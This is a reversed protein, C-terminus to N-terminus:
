GTEAAAKADALSGAVAVCRGAVTVEFVIELRPRNATCVPVIEAAGRTWYVSLPGRAGAVRHRQWRM